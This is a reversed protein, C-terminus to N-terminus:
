TGELAAALEPGYDHSLRFLFVVLNLADEPKSIDFSLLNRDMIHTVPTGCEKGPIGVDLRHTTFTCTVVGVTGETLLGFVPLTVGLHFLFKSMAANYIRIQNWGTRESTVHDKKYEAAFIPVLLDFSPDESAIGGQGRKLATQETTGSASKSMFRHAEGLEITRASSSIRAPNPEVTTDHMESDANLEGIIQSEDSPEYNLVFASRMVAFPNNANDSQPTRGSDMKHAGASTDHTGLHFLFKSMAANYIRIQNWGTRESTVHDKKYEAAFIPVLLDFSPDESAIGGQGRRLATQETAGSASKSMFRHAEGLEITRASSSIRAPNPEVTTDHMESDANLEGIIQSEDSPEYNLVFASRMVAFPNNANDSQPTRGSDMKHAGASTDHTQSDRAGQTKLTKLISRPTSPSLRPFVRHLQLLGLADCRATRPGEHMRQTLVSLDGRDTKKDEEEFVSLANSILPYLAQADKQQDYTADNAEQLYRYLEVEDILQRRHRIGLTRWPQQPVSPNSLMFDLVENRPLEITQEYLAMVSGEYYNLCIRLLSDWCQRFEIESIPYTRSRRKVLQADSVACLISYCHKHLFISLPKQAISPPGNDSIGISRLSSILEKRLGQLAEDKVEPMVLVFDTTKLSLYNYYCQVHPLMLKWQPSLMDLDPRKELKEYM